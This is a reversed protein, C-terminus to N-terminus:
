LSHSCGRLKTSIILEIINELLQQILDYHLLIGEEIYKTVSNDGLAGINIVNGLAGIDMWNDWLFNVNGM